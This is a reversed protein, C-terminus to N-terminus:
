LQCITKKIKINLNEIFIADIYDTFPQKDGRGWFPQDSYDFPELRHKEFQLDESNLIAESLAEFIPILKTKFNKDLREPTKYDKGTYEAIVLSVPCEFDVGRNEPSKKGKIPLLLWVLPFKRAAFKPTSSMKTLNDNIEILDGYQYNINIGSLIAASAVIQEFIVYILKQTAM